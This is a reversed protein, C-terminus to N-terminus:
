RNRTINQLCKRNAAAMNSKRFTGPNSLIRWKVAWGYEPLTVLANRNVGLPKSIAAFLIAQPTIKGGGGQTQPNVSFLMAVALVYAVATQKSICTVVYMLCNIM